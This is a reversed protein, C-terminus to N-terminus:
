NAGSDDTKAGHKNDYSSSAYADRSKTAGESDADENFVFKHDAESIVDYVLSESSPGSSILGSALDVDETFGPDSAFSSEFVPTEHKEWDDAYDILKSWDLLEDETKRTPFPGKPLKVNAPEMKEAPDKGLMEWLRREENCSAQQDLAETYADQLEEHGEHENDVDTIFHLPNGSLNEDNSLAISRGGDVSRSDSSISDDLASVSLDRQSPGKGSGSASSHKSMGPSDADSDNSFMSPSLIKELATYSYRKGFVQRHRVRDYVRLKCKRAARAWFIKADIKMGLVNIAAIVDRQRVHLRPRSGSMARLRSRAFFLTSQVLRQTVSILLTHFYSFATYMISPSKTRRGTYSRWNDEAVVSNMFFRKSLALFNVLNLITAAPIQEVVEKEGGEPVAMRHEIWRAIRPTLLALDKHKKKADKEEESQQLASLADAALDLAACCSEQVELAAELSSTDLLSKRTCYTQQEVTAKQLMDSYVYVESENKTGVDTAIGRIDHRGKRALAHFFAAKEESSWLTVGIQSQQLRHDTMSSQKRTLENVTNNFMARYDDNYLSKSRKFKSQSATRSGATKRKRVSYMQSSESASNFADLESDEASNDPTNSTSEHDSM